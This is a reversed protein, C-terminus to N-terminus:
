GNLGDERLAYAIAQEISMARGEQMAKEFEVEGLQALARAKAREYPRRDEAALAAGM